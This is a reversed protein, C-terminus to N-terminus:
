RSFVIVQIPFLEMLLGVLGEIKHLVYLFSSSAESPPFQLSSDPAVNM